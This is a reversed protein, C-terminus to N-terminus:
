QSFVEAWTMTERNRRGTATNVVEIQMGEETM